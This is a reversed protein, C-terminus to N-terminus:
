ARTGSKGNTLPWPLYSPEAEQLKGHVVFEVGDGSFFPKSGQAVVLCPKLPPSSAGDDVLFGDGFPQNLMAVAGWLEHHPAIEAGDKFSADFSWHQECRSAEECHGWAPGFCQHMARHCLCSNDLQARHRQISALLFPGKLPWHDDDLVM